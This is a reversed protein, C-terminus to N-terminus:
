IVFSELTAPHFLEEVSLRRASLGQAHHHRLFTELVHRNPAVGYPWYDAGMLDRARRVHVEVFPLTAKAASEDALREIAITKSQGFAKLLAGPLWPHAEAMTRRLGLLHMIPFMASPTRDAPTDEVRIAEPLSLAIKEIRGPQNLGGRVWTIDQPMVGHDDALIARGWVNATLQYEPVGIRRGRLDEPRSIGRDTRIFVADYIDAHIFARSTSGCSQGCWTFNMGSVAAAAVAEPDADSFAILANKGGLELLM